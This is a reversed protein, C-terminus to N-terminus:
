GHGLRILLFGIVVSVVLWLSFFLAAIPRGTISRDGLPLRVIL